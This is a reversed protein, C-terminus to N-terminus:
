RILEEATFVPGDVCVRKFGSKTNVVCGLCAGLGCAMHAELSLQAKIKNKEALQAVTKLMLAPGCAFLELRGSNKNRRLIKELLGTVRGKFGRSGDDTAIELRCGAGKFEQECLIQSKTKAGLIVLSGKKIKKALFVLPAVGMGGAVLIAQRSKASEAPSISFGNGLPGIIDLYEGPKRESLIRTGGGLVEYFVKLNLGSAAHISLPRRLLPELSDSVKINIFQGASAHQAIAAASLECQWYNGTVKRNSIIKAKIQKPKM